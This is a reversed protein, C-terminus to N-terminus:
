RKPTPKGSARNPRKRPKPASRNNGHQEKKQLRVVKSEKIAFGKQKMDLLKEHYLYAITLVITNSIVYSVVKPGEAIRKERDDSVLVPTLEETARQALFQTLVPFNDQIHEAIAFRNQEDQLFHLAEGLLAASRDKSNAM